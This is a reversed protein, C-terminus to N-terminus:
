LARILYNLVTHAPAVLEITAQDTEGYLGPGWWSGGGSDVLGSSAQIEFFNPAVPWNFQNAAAQGVFLGNPNALGTTEPFAIQVGGGEASLPHSHTFVPFLEGRMDGVPGISPNSADYGLPFRGRLDPINFTTTTDGRGFTTGIVNFLAQYNARSIARGDCILWRTNGDPDVPDSAGGYPAILGYPPPQNAALLAATSATIANFGRTFSAIRPPSQQDAFVLYYNGADLWCQFNGQADTEYPTPVPTVGEYSEYVSASGVAVGLSGDDNAYFISVGVGEVPMLDGAPGVPLTVTEFFQSRLAM